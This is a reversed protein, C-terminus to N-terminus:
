RWLPGAFFRESEPRYVRVGLAAATGRRRRPPATPAPEATRAAAAAPWALSVARFAPARLLTRRIEAEKIPDRFRTPTRPHLPSLPPNEQDMTGIVDIARQGAADTATDDAGAQLLVSVSSPVIYGAAYHLLPGALGLPNLLVRRQWNEDGDCHLLMLMIKKWGRTLAAALSVPVASLGGVADLGRRDALIVRVVEVHGKIVAVGLPCHEQTPTRPHRAGADLLTSVAGPHGELAAFYLPSRGDRTTQSITSPAASLLWRIAETVGLSAAHCMATYSEEDQLTPDAGAEILADAIPDSWATVAMLMLPTLGVSMRKDASAGAALLLRVIPTNRTCCAVHLASHGYGALPLYFDTFHTQRRSQVSDAVACAANVDAGRSLLLEVVAWHRHYVATILPRHTESGDLSAGEELM